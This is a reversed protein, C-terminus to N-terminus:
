NRQIKIEINDISYQKNFDKSLLNLYGTKVQPEYHTNMVPNSSYAKNITVIVQVCGTYMSDKNSYEKLIQYAKTAYFYDPKANTEEETFYLYLPEISSMDLYATQVNYDETSDETIQAKAKNSTMFWFSTLSFM